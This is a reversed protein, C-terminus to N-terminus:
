QQPGPPPPESEDPAPQDTAIAALFEDEGCVDKNFPFVGSVHFGSQINVPVFAKPYAVGAIAAINYIAIPKGPHNLLWENCASNYFRKFPGFVARDLPQLKPSCHPQLTLIVISSGRALDVVKLTVHTDHNDMILLVKNNKSCNTYKIFRRLYSVFSENNMWGSKNAAGVSGHPAGNLM